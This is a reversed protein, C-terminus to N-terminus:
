RGPLWGPAGGLPQQSMAPQRRHTWLAAHTWPGLLKGVHSCNRSSKSWNGGSGGGEACDRRPRACSPGQTSAEQAIQADAVRGRGQAHSTVSAPSPCVPGEKSRHLASHRSGPTSLGPEQPSPLDCPRARPSCDRPCLPGQLTGVDKCLTGETVGTGLVHHSVPSLCPPSNKRGRAPHQRVPTMGKRRQPRGAQGSM